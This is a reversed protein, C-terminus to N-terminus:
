RDITFRALLLGRLDDDFFPDSSYDGSVKVELADDFFRHGAGLSIFLSADEGSIDIDDEYSVFVLDGTVFGGPVLAIVGDLYVFARTLLYRTQDADGDMYGIEAGASTLNEGYWNVLGSYFQSSDDLVDYDYSKVKFGLQWSETASWVADAGYVTLTEGTGALFRFPNASNAETSFFDEYQFYQFHPRLQIGALGFRLEYAHEAFGGNDLNYSSFGFLGIGAPLFLSLDGGLRGEVLEDDNELRKYSAGIEYRAGLHHAIRGGWIRDGSRGDESDLSVPFGGYVSATLYRGLDGSLRAGDVSENAVGEFVYFRGAKFDLNSYPRTYQLYGYLLEGATDDKFFDGDGLDARGWGYLHFSLGKAPLDGVDFQLYEYAPVVRVDDKGPIDREFGRLLTDSTLQFNAAVATAPLLLSLAILLLVHYRNGTKM